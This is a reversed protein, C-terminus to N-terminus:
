SVSLTDSPLRISCIQDSLWEKSESVMIELKKNVLSWDIRQNINIAQGRSVIRNLLGVDSLLSYIRDTSKEDGTYYFEKNFVLSLAVGHFSSVVVYSANRLLSLFEQADATFRYRRGYHFEVITGRLEIVPLGTEGQIKEIASDLFRNKTTTYYLVYKNQPVEKDPLLSKWQNISLLFVPDLVKVPEVEFYDKCYDVFDKERCSIADFNNLHSSIFPRDSEKLIKVSGCSAAYSLRYKAKIVNAGWYVPDFGKLEKKNFKRWIQDSGYIVADYSDSVPTLIMYHNIFKETNRKRLFYRISTMMRLEIARLIQMFPRAFTEKWFKTRYDPWYDVISANHGISRLHTMLALAQLEAGYNLSRHYTLIGIKMKM